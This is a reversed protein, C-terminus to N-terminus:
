ELPNTMPPCGLHELIILRKGGVVRPLHGAHTGDPKTITKWAFWGVYTLALAAGTKTAPIAKNWPKRGM